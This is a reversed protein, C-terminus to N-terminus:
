AGDVYQAQQDKSIVYLVINVINSILTFFVEM